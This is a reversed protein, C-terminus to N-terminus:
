HASEKIKCSSKDRDRDGEEWEGMRNRKGIIPKEVKRRYSNRYMCACVCVCM